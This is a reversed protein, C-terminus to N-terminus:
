WIGVQHAHKEEYCLEPHKWIEQSVENLEEAVKDIADCAVQKLMKKDAMNISSELYTLLKFSHM